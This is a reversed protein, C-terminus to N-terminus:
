HVIKQIFFSWIKENQVFFDKHNKQKSKRKAFSVTQKNQLEDYLIIWVSRNHCKANQEVRKRQPYGIMLSFPQNSNKPEVMSGGRIGSLFAKTTLKM